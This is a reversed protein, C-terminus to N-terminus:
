WWKGDQDEDKEYKRWIQENLFIQNKKKENWKM